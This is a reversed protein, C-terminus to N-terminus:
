ERDPWAGENRWFELGPVVWGPPLWPLDLEAGVLAAAPGQPGWAQGGPLLSRLLNATLPDEVGMPIAEPNPGLPPNAVDLSDPVSFHAVPSPELVTWPESEIPLLVGLAELIEIPRGWVTEADWPAPDAPHAAVRIRAGKPEWPWAKVGDVRQGSVPDLVVTGVQVPGGEFWQLAGGRGMVDTGAQMPFGMPTHNLAAAGGSGDLLWSPDGRGDVILGETEM